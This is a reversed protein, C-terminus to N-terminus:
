LTKLYEIVAFRQQDTLKDGFTHGGNGRGPLTTDYIKRQEIAPLKPDAGRDLLQIKWGLKEKDYAAEDTEFSRTFFRPRGKSNLVDYVTPASGNHFYPATAWIGDLPPAQYGASPKTPMGDAFWGPNEQAFWSANYAANFKESIGRYRKSDTGIESLPVIKNPYTGNEGYTGHCRACTNKFLKEGQNALNRDISFPYKPPELTLLYAQIDKFTAEEREFVSPPNLPSMMFQMISRVSRADAGGTWYMTKKKKLLWWAPPDECLDDKLELNVPRKRLKLDPERFGLLFVAMAAAESTGRVNTFHFPTRGAGGQAKGLEEAFAQFDLTSNGLGVYSKGCISGGHCLLCDTAIAKVLLTADERMGMPYRGNPYPAPHLGYRKAFVKDYDLPPQKAGEQWVKWANEYAYISMTAPTFARGLLAKKGREAPTLEAATLGLSLHALSIAVIVVRFGLRM